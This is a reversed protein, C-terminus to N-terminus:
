LISGFSGLEQGFGSAKDAWVALAAPWQSLRGAFVGLPQFSFRSSGNSPGVMILNM